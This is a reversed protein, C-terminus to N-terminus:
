LAVEPHKLAGVHPLRLEELEIRVVLENQLDAGIHNAILALRVAHGNVSLVVDPNRCGAAGGDLLDVVADAAANRAATTLIVAM